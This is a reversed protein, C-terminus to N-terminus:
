LSTTLVYKIKECLQEKTDRRPHIGLLIALIILNMPPVNGRKENDCANHIIKRYVNDSGINIIDQKINSLEENYINLLMRTNKYKRWDVRHDNLLLKVIEVYVPKKYNSTSRGSIAYRLVRNNWDSPDVRPDNMLIKVININGDTAARFIAENRQDGPDVLPHNLLIKVLDDRDFEAAIIIAKNNDISPNFEPYTLLKELLGILLYRKPSIYDILLYENLDNIREYQDEM